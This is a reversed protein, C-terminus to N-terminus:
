RKINLQKIVDNVFQRNVERYKEITEDNAGYIYVDGFEVNPISRESIPSIDTVPQSSAGVTNFVNSVGSSVVLEKLKDSIVTAFDILRFLATEKKADLIAEGKELVALMENQKLTADGGAIGGTHYRDYLRVTKSRNLYWTGSATDFYLDPIYQRLQNGLTQNDAALKNKGENTATNWAMSNAKMRNVISKIMEESSYSNDYKTNGVIDNHTEGGASNIDYDISNLANVYSGYRQAAAM